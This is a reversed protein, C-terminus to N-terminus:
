LGESLTSVAGRRRYAGIRSPGDATGPTIVVDVEDTLPERTLPPAYPDEAYHAFDGTLTRYQGIGEPRLRKDREARYRERLVDPDFGLDDRKPSQSGTPPATM